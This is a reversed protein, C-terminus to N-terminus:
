YLYDLAVIDFPSFEGSTTSSFCANWISGPDSGTPTGPIHIANSIGSGGCPGSGSAVDTHAMGICHGIEHTMLHEIFNTSFADNGSNVAVWKYPSGSSPFGSSGGSGANTTKYVVIDGATSTSFTLTFTLSLNLANYNNIAWQLGTRMKNTLAYSGGTYGIVNITAPATVLNSNRYQEAIASISNSFDGSIIEQMQTAPIEIDEELIYVLEEQETFPSLRKKVLQLGEVSYGQETLANLISDSIENEPLTEEKEMCSFITTASVVIAATYAAIRKLDIM